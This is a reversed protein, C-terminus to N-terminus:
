SWPSVLPEISAGWKLLAEDHGARAVLQLGLPLLHGGAGAIRGSPVTLAPLGAQSFPLNLAPDGTSELGHPAPGPASPAVLLDVGNEDMAVELQRRLLGRADRAQEVAGDDALRGRELLERTKGHLRDGYREYLDAHSRYFDSALLLRHRAEIDDFDAMLPLRLVKFGAAELAAIQREFDALAAPETRALHPGEPVVLVPREPPPDAESWDAMLVRAALAAGAVDSTLWGVHDLSSALPIVGAKSVRDYTPKMGVVGCFAAPRGVSGITQTGLTLSSLGAAVAAASGSSSGGPTHELHHPNRTPGPGFYAMETCAAKGLILAGARRLATVSEAQQGALEAPPIASGAATSLGDVHFVDKVAVPVGFLAPRREPDPYQRRLEALERRLREFRGEEPVMAHVDSECQAFRAEIQDLYADASEDASALRDALSPLSEAPQWHSDIKAASPSASPNESSTASTM